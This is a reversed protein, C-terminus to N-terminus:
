FVPWYRKQVEKVSAVASKAAMKAQLGTDKQYEEGPERNVMTDIVALVSEGLAKPNYGGELVFVPAGGCKDTIELVVAALRAYGPGSMSMQGIYDDAHADMGASVLILEPNYACAAPLLIQRFVFEYDDDNSGRPLPVNINFGAGKGEGANAAQGTGPFNWERHVSFYLVSSENYFTEETGNGHHEDWDVVLIRELGYKKAAYRACIAVNNFFCFGMAAGPTAHHGPPRVLAFASDVKGELVADVAALTGGAALLATEFTGRSGANDGGLNGGGRRSFDRIKAVYVPKHVLEIEETTAPRPQIAELKELIGAKALYNYAYAVRYGNEPHSGTDHNLYAEDYILGTKM